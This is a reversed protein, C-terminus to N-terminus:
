EKWLDEDEFTAMTRVVAGADQALVKTFSGFSNCVIKVAWQAVIPKNSDPEDIKPLGSRFARLGRDVLHLKSM